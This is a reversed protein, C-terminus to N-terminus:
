VGFVGGLRGLEAFLVCHGRAPFVELVSGEAARCLVYANEVRCTLDEYGHWVHLIGAPVGEFLFPWPRTFLQHEEVVARVGADGQRFAEAMSRYMLKMWAPDSFFRLDDRSASHLMQKGQRSALFAGVDGGARLVERRMQRMALMGVYPLKMIYRALPMNHATSVDFPLSPSSAVVAATVRHPNSTLYSLAFVSGGSWGLVGFRWVGLHDMLVSIDDNLDALNKRSKYSSLGYGPRDVAVIKLGWSEAFDKLLLVELRSSATGHFYVVPAGSGVTAYALQRGDPLVIKQSEVPVVNINVSAKNIL